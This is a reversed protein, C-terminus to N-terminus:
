EVRATKAQEGGDCGGGTLMPLVREARAAGTSGDDNAGTGVGEVEAGTLLGFRGLQESLGSQLLRPKHLRDFTCARQM